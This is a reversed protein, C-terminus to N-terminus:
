LSEADRAGTDIRVTALIPSVFIRGDGPTGTRASNAIVDIVEDTDDDQVVIALTVKEITMDVYSGTGRGTSRIVGTNDGRGSSRTITMGEFGANVLAEKVSALKEPRIIAEIKNM